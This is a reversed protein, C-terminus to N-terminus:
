TNSIMDSIETDVRMNEIKNSFFYISFASFLLIYVIIFIKKINSLKEM